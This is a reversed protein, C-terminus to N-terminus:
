RLKSCFWWRRWEMPSRPKFWCLSKTKALSRWNSSILTPFLWGYKGVDKIPANGHGASQGASHGLVPMSHSSKSEAAGSKGISNGAKPEVSNVKSNHNAKGMM